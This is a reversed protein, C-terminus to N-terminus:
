PPQVDSGGLCADTAAAVTGSHPLLASRSQLKSHANAPHLHIADSDALLLHTAYSDLRSYDGM